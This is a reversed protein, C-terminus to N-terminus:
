IFEPEKRGACAKKLKQNVAMQMITGIKRGGAPCVKICRMCHICREEDTVKPDTRSIAQVPCSRICKGCNTCSSNVKIKLPLKGPEKYPYNGKVALEPIEYNSRIEQLMAAVKQGYQILLKKDNDDPRGTAVCHAINHETVVAAASMPRFGQETLVNKLELLADDYARNGYTVVLVVPTQRGHLKKFREISPGPIRGAYVPVGAVVVENETFSYDPRTKSVETLDLSEHPGPIQAAILEVVAKTSETPSFYISTVQKYNM